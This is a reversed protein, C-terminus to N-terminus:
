EPDDPNTSQWLMPRQSHKISIDVNLPIAKDIVIPSIGLAKCHDLVAMGHRIIFYDDSNSLAMRYEAYQRAIEGIRAGTINVLKDM